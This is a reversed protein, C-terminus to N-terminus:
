AGRHNLLVDRGEGSLYRMLVVKSEIGKVTGLCWGADGEGM